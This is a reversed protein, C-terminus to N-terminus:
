PSSEDTLATKQEPLLSYRGSAPDYYVYDGSAQNLLWERVYREATGTKAALEDPTLGTSDALAEYLGLKIGIFGLVSSLSAGFDGVVKGLFANMKEENIEPQQATQSM